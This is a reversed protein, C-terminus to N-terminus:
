HIIKSAKAKEAVRETSKSLPEKLVVGLLFAGGLFVLLYLIDKTVIDHLMGGVTERLLSIAYTFPLFPHIAQFFPPTVQIPFTGGSGSLQLVLMIIAFAKGINGFVSVFTYVITMFVISIFIGFVVFWVPDAVYAGLVKMDGITVILAQFIGITLFTLLRGFYIHHSKYMGEPDEVDFRLLSVLLIAGVWLCLTTYFPSMASGYNPIPFKKDEKLHVPNALFDSEKQIDNKLLRIIENIDQSQEFARIKDAAKRVSDELEPLDTRVLDAVNHVTEEVEPLKQQILNSVKHIEQEARPLDNRVFDAAQHVKPELKPLDHQVFAAAENVGETLRNMKDQISGAAEHVKDKIEPLEGQLRVLEQQGYDIGKAADDLIAKIDPLRTQATQLVDAANQASSKLQNLAQNINPVIESDYRALIGGLANSADKSLTNLNNVITKAPQEGREIANQIARMTNIQQQFNNKVANLRQIVHNLPHGPLYNNLTTLLNTTREIVQVGTSLRQQLFSLAELTPTPDINAQQLTETLQTVADATQQLLILNQKVVPAIAAFAGDNQKLFDNLENAFAGGDKAIQEVKPLAQQTDSVIEGAKQANVLAENLADEVKYFNQDIEVIRDAAKQISPLKQQIVVIENGVEEIKPLKEELKLIYGGARKVEPLKKELEVVKQGKERIEPLKREFELAKNGAEEIDLLRKELELIRNEIHRITPLEKELELGAKNFETFMAESVTKVFNKNVEGVISTAGTATIKPAIANIKENVSYRIEPSQPNEEIITALKASFDKPILLSAYYDGHNVGREAEERSVFKWGLKKNAKLNQVVEDGIHIETQIEKNNIVTGEDENTVAIAIGSTDGYPDWSAKLNFWAYLSPLMMLGVILFLAIPVKFINRWDTAYIRFISKM